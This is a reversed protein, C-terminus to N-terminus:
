AHKLAKTKSWEEIKFSYLIYETFFYKIFLNANALTDKRSNWFNSRSSLLLMGSVQHETGAVQTKRNKVYTFIQYMNGSYITTVDYYTQMTHQYYKTDIILTQNGYTLDAYGSTLRWLWGGSGMPDPACPLFIWTDKTWIGTCLVGSHIKRIVLENM